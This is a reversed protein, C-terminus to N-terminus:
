VAFHTFGRVNHSLFGFELHVGSTWKRVAKWATPKRDLQEKCQDEKKGPTNSGKGKTTRIKSRKQRVISGKTWEAKSVISLKWFKRSWCYGVGFGSIERKRRLLFYLSGNLGNSGFWFGGVCGHM